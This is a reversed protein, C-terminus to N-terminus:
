NINLIDALDDIEDISIFKDKFLNKIESLVRMYGYRQLIKFILNEDSYNISGMLQELESDLEDKDFAKHRLNKVLDKNSILQEVDKNIKNLAINLDRTFQALEDKDLEKLFDILLILDITDRKTKSIDLTLNDLYAKAKDKAYELIVSPSYGQLLKQPEKIWEDTIVSYLSDFKLLNINEFEEKSIFYFDLAHLTGPIVSTLWFSERGSKVFYDLIDDDLISEFQPNYKKFIPINIVVKVDLDSTDTYYYTALSSGILVDQVFGDGGKINEYEFFGHISVFIFEKIGIRLTNDPKWIFSSLDDHQYDLISM